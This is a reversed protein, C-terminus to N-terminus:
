AKDRRFIHKPSDGIGDGFDKEGLFFLGPNGRLSLM